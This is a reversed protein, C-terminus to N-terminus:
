DIKTEKFSVLDLFDKFYDINSKEQKKTNFSFENISEDAFHLKRIHPSILDAVIRSIYYRKDNVIITFDNDYKEFPIDEISKPSLSFDM